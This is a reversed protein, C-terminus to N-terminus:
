RDIMDRAAEVIQRTDAPKSVLIWAREGVINFGYGTGAPVYTEIATLVEVLKSRHM